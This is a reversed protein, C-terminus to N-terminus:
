IRSFKRIYLESNALSIYNTDITFIVSQCKNLSYSRARPLGRARFRLTGLIVTCNSAFYHYALQRFHCRYGFSKVRQSRLTHITNVEPKCRSLAANINSIIAVRQYLRPGRVRLATDMYANLNVTEVLWRGAFM